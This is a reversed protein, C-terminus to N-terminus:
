QQQDSRDGPSITAGPANSQVSGTQQVPPSQPPETVANEDSGSRKQLVGGSLVKALWIQLTRVLFILPFVSVVYIRGIEEVGELGLSSLIFLYTVTPPVVVIFATAMRLWIPCQYKRFPVAIFALILGSVYPTVIYPIGLM